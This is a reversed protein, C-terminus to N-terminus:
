FFLDECSKSRKLNMSFLYKILLEFTKVTPSKIVEFPICAETSYNECINIKLDRNTNLEAITENERDPRNSDNSRRDIITESNEDIFIIIDPELRKIIEVPVKVLKDVDKVLCHGDFIIHQDSLEGRKSLFNLVLKEQNSLIQGANQKRM